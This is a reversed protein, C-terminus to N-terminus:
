VKWNQGHGWNKSCSVISGRYISDVQTQGDTWGDTVLWCQVLIALHLIVFILGYSLSDTKRTSFNHRFELPTVGM